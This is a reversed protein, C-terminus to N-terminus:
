EDEDRNIYVGESDTEWEPGPGKVEIDEDGSESRVRNEEQEQLYADRWKWQKGPGKVEVQVGDTLTTNDTNDM